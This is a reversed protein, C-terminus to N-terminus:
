IKSQQIRYRSDPEANPIFELITHINRLTEDERHSVLLLTSEGAEILKEVISLVYFRNFDDLGETPEDLIILPPQKILARAILLLRQQGMSLSRFPTSAQESLDLIALWHMALSKEKLGIDSYIGITDTLGSIVVSLASASARYDRHLAGSVYGIHKKIQWISEGTGRQYGLVKLDNRYCQPHDGTILGLLTSKGSGNPGTIRTHEGPRLQWDLARFQYTNDYQVFGNKLDVLAKDRPWAPLQFEPDRAPLPPVGNKHQNLQQWANDLTDPLPGQYAISGKDILAVHKCADIIDHTQNVVLILWQGQAVLRNLASHLLDNNDQDLGEFPEDLILLEPKELLARAILVRRAEGSSLRRYGRELLHDLHLTQLLTEHEGSWPSIEAMLTKVSRGDDIKDILDTEDLYLEQEYLAQQSELSVWCSSAPPDLFEGSTVTLEGCLLKALSSKGSANAGLVAWCDSQNLQWNIDSLIPNRKDKLNAQIFRM